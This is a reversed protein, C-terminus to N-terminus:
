GRENVNKEKQRTDQIRYYGEQRDDQKGQYKRIQILNGQIRITSLQKGYRKLQMIPSPLEMTKKIKKTKNM